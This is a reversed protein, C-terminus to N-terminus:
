IMCTTLCLDYRSKLILAIDLVFLFNLEDMGITGGLEIVCVDSPSEKGDVPILSAREIWKQIADTIHPVVQFSFFHLSVTLEIPKLFVPSVSLSLSRSLKGWIIEM